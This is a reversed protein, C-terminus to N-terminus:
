DDWPHPVVTFTERKLQQVLLLSEMPCKSSASSGIIALFQRTRYDERILRRMFIDSGGMTAFM